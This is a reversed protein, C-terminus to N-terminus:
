DLVPPLRWKRVYLIHAALALVGVVSFLYSATHTAQVMMMRSKFALNSGWTWAGQGYFGLLIVGMVSFAAIFVVVQTILVKRLVQRATLIPWPGLLASAVIVFGGMLGVWWTALVGWLLAMAVPSQSEIIRPHWETFYEVAIHATVMDHVIGYGIAMLIMGCLIKIAEIRRLALDSSKLPAEEEAWVAM